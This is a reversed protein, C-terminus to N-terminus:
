RNVAEKLLWKKWNLSWEDSNDKTVRTLPAAVFSEQPAQNMLVKNVILEVSKYGWVFCSQAILVQVHGSKLYELEDPLADAAVIKSHGPEWTIGNKKYLPWGGVFIWGGIQPNAKQAHNVVEAAKEPLEDHYFIGNALLKMNPYKKLEENVARVRVQLNQANKNGAIVAITGKENMVQALEDVMMHGMEANDSGCYAFRKSKPADADFCVVQTGADVAKNIAPTLTSADSCAIAIGQVGEQALREVMQAQEVPNEMQPTQWDITIQVGYKAGIEKAAVRAGSYAAVFVPNSKSKGIMGITVNKGTLKKASQQAVVLSGNICVLFFCLILMKRVM